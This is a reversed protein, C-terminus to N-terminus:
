AYPIARRRQERELYSMPMTPRETHKNHKVKWDMHERIRADFTERSDFGYKERWDDQKKELQRYALEELEAAETVGFGPLIVTRGDIMKIAIPATPKAARGGFYHPLDSIMKKLEVEPNTPVHFLRAMPVLLDNPNGPDLGPLVLKVPM